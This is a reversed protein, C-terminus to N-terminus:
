ALDIKRYAVSSVLVASVTIYPTARSDDALWQKVQGTIGGSDLNLGFGRRRKMNAPQSSLYALESEPLGPIKVIRWFPASLEAASWPHGDPVIVIVDGRKSIMADKYADPDVGKDTVRILVECM